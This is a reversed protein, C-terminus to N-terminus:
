LFKKLENAIDKVNENNSNNYLTSANSVNSLLNAAEKMSPYYHLLNGIAIGIRFQNDAYDENEMSINLLELLQFAHEYDEADKILITFNLITTILAYKFFKNSNENATKEICDIILKINENIFSKGIKSAFLNSIFRFLFMRCNISYKDGEVSKEKPSLPFNRKLLDIIFDKNNGQIPQPTYISCMRLIDLCPFRYNVPWEICLKKITDMHKQNFKQKFEKASPNEFLIALESLNEIDEENLCKDSIEIKIIENFELIKSIIKDVNGIKFITYDDKPIYTQKTTNFSQTYSTFPTNVVSPTNTQELTVPKSNNIIFM